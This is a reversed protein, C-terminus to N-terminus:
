ELHNLRVTLLLAMLRMIKTFRGTASRWREISKQVASPKVNLGCNVSSFAVAISILLSAETISGQGAAARRGVLGLLVLEHVGPAELVRVAVQPLDDVHVGGCELLLDSRM